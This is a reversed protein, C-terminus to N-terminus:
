DEPFPQRLCSLFGIERLNPGQLEIVRRAREQVRIFHWSAVSTFVTCVHKSYIYWPVIKFWNSQCFSFAVSLKPWIRRSSSCTSCKLNLASQSPSSSSSSMLSNIAILLKLDIRMNNMSFGRMHFAPSVIKQAPMIRVNCNKMGEAKMIFHYYKHFKSVHGKNLSKVWCPYTSVPKKVPNSRWSFVLRYWTYLERNQCGKGKGLALRGNVSKLM